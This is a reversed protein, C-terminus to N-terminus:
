IKCKELCLTKLFFVFDLHTLDPSRLYWHIPGGGGRGICRDPFKRDVFVRVRRSFHPPAGHLEFYTGVPVYCLATNEMMALFTDGTVTPEEFLFSWYSQEEYFRVV